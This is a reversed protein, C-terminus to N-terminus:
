EVLKSLGVLTVGSERFRPASEKLAKITLPHLHGIGVAKGDKLAKKILLEIQSKIYDVDQKNDLFIQRSASPVGIAQALEYGVSRPTTRSDLFYLGRIKLEDLIVRMSKRDELMLSGMHNNVGEAGPVDRLGSDLIRLIEQKSMNVLLTDKEWYTSACKQPEMPLHLIVECYRRHAEQALERSFPHHPLISVTLVMNLSLLSQALPRNYGLDDIVVAVLPKHKRGTVPSVEHSPAELSSKRQFVLVYSWTLADKGGLCFTIRRANDNSVGEDGLFVKGGQERVLDLVMQRIKTWSIDEQFEVVRRFRDSLSSKETGGGSCSLTASDLGMKPLAEKVALDFERAWFFAKEAENLPTPSPISPIPLTNKLRTSFTTSILLRAHEARKRFADFSRGGKIYLFGISGVLGLFVLIFATIAWKVAWGAHRGKKKRKGM